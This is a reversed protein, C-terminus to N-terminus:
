SHEERQRLYELQVALSGEPLDPLFVARQLASALPLSPLGHDRLYHITKLQAFADFWQEFQAPAPLRSSARQEARRIQNM